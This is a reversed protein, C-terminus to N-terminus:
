APNLWRRVTARSVRMTAAITHEPVNMEHLTRVAWRRAEGGEAKAADELAREVRTHERMIIDVAKPGALDVMMRLYSSDPNIGAQNLRTKDHDPFLNM